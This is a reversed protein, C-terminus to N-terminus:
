TRYSSTWAPTTTNWTLVGGHSTTSLTTLTTTGQHATWEKIINGYGNEDVSGTKLSITGTMHEDSSFSEDNSISYCDKIIYRLIEGTNKPVVINGSTAVAAGDGLFWLIVRWRKKGAESGSKYETGSTPGQSSSASLAVEAFGADRTVYDFSVEYDGAPKNIQMSNGGFTRITDVEGTGGTMNINTIRAEVNYATDAGEKEFTIIVDEGEFYTLSM